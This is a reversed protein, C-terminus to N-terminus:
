CTSGGRPGHRRLVLRGVWGQSQIWRHRTVGRKSDYCAATKFIQGCVILRRVSALGSGQMLHANRKSAQAGGYQKERRHDVVGLPRSYLMFQLPQVGLEAAHSIQVHRDLSQLGGALLPRPCHGITLVPVLLARDAMSM